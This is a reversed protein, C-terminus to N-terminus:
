IMLKVTDDSSHPRREAWPLNDGYKDFLKSELERCKQVSCAQWTVSIRDRNNMNIHKNLGCSTNLGYYQQMRKQIGIEASGVKMVQGSMRLIYVGPRNPNKSSDAVDKLSGSGVGAAQSAAKAVSSVGKMLSDFLGM